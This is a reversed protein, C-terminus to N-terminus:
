LNNNAIEKKIVDSLSMIDNNLTNKPLAAYFKGDLPFEKGKFSGLGNGVWAEIIISNETYLLNIFKRSTLFGDGKRFVKEEGYKVEHYGLDNIAEAIKPLISQPNEKVEFKFQSRNKKGPVFMAAFLVLFGLIICIIGGVLLGNSDELVYSAGLLGGGIGCFIIGIVYLLVLLADM